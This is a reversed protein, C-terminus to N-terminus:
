KKHLTHFHFNRKTLFFIFFIRNSLIGIQIHKTRIRRCKLGCHVFFLPRRQRTQLISLRCMVYCWIISLFCCFYWYKGYFLRFSTFSLFFTNQCTWRQRSTVDLYVVIHIRSITCSFGYVRVCVYIYKYEDYRVAFCPVCVSHLAVSHTYGIAVFVCCKRWYRYRKLHWGCERVCVCLRACKAMACMLNIRHPSFSCQVCVVISTVCLRKMRSRASSSTCSPFLLTDFVFKKCKYIHARIDCARYVRVCVFAAGGYLVRVKAWVTNRRRRRRKQICKEKKKKIKRTRM